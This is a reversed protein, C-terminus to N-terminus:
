VWMDGTKDNGVVVEQPADVSKILRLWSVAPEEM